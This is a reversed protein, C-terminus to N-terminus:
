EIEKVAHLALVASFNSKIRENRLGRRSVKRTSQQLIVPFLSSVIFFDTDSHHFREYIFSTDVNTFEFSKFGLISLLIHILISYALMWLDMLFSSFKKQFVRSALVRRFKSLNVNKQWWHDWPNIKVSTVMAEGKAGSMVTSNKEHFPFISLPWLSKRWNERLKKSGISLVFQFSPLTAWEERLVVLRPLKERQRLWLVIQFLNRILHHCVKLRKGRMWHFAKSLVTSVREVLLSSDKGDFIVIM